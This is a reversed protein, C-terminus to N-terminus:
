LHIEIIDGDRLRCELGVKQGPFKSSGWLRSYKFDNLFRAHIKECVDKVTSNNKVILPNSMDPEKGIPKLYIRILDLRKWINEKLKEINIGKAASIKLANPIRPEFLDIKNIVKLAPIYVRNHAFSDIFRDVSVDERVLIDANYIGFEKLVSVIEEKSIRTLKVTSNINVGGKTKRYIRIDPRKENLRLGVNYLEKEIINVQEEIKGESNGAAVILILDANRVVSLVKRGRGKGSSAESIIGPIDLVQIKAGYYEMVGPIIDLTTFDYEAVKSEAKTIANILTSKGVSPFGVIVVTADGSKKVSYGGGKKGGRKESEENLIALKAKLKGIHAQTAKNYKTNKLEEEVKKIDAETM